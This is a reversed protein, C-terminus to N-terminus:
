IKDKVLLFSIYLFTEAFFIGSFYEPM